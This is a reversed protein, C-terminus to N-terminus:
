STKKNTESKEQLDSTQAKMLSHQQERCRSEGGNAENRRQVDRRCLHLQRDVNERLSDLEGAGLFVVKQSM